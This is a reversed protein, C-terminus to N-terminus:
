HLYSNVQYIFTDELNIEDQLTCSYKVYDTIASVLLIINISTSMDKIAHIVDEVYVERREHASVVRSYNINCDWIGKSGFLHKGM